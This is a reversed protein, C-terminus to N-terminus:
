GGGGDGLARLLRVMEVVVEAAEGGKNAGPEGPAAARELAQEVSEVTLVCFGVPLACDLGVQRVGDTVGQCVYEFHPTDGRVVAGVAVLADYRGTRAASQAALPIEFAGPVWMVDLDGCGLESLRRACGEVLRRTIVHNFRAAVVGVRLGSADLTTEITRM